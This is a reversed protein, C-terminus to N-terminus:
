MTVQMYKKFSNTNLEYRITAIDLMEQKTLTQPLGHSSLEEETYARDGELVISFKESGTLFAMMEDATATKQADELDDILAQGYIDARFRNLTFGESVDFAYEGSDDVVIHFSHTIDDGNSHLIQLVQYAVGNLTLNKERTSTYTGNDEFTLSYSLVNSALIDGNRDLINGRTSKIVREKTTRAEFKSIYDQGQIIQLDFLRRVLVVSMLVFALVLVTTRKLSIKRFIRKIKTGM